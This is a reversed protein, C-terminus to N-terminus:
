EEDGEAGVPAYMRDPASVGLLTLANRLVIRVCDVLFLRADRKEPDDSVIKEAHKYRTYYGHFTKILDQLYFVVHHPERGIACGEIIGPYALAQRALALEEPLRLARVMEPRYGPVAHGADAAKRIISAIRAHGYQVYYVPNDLSQSKALDLDFELQSDHRRMIFFFRAADPGVEDRLFRLDVINGARKSFKVPQGDRLLNVLQVLVVELAAPDHGMGALSAKMRPIYGHHDAGWVDILTEFGREFKDNHYAIDSAFYTPVGNERIVVRDDDDGFATTRFKRAGTEDTYMHGKRELEDLLGYVKGDAYLSSEAFWNDFHINFAALDERIDDLVRDSVYRRFREGIAEDGAYDADKLSAGVEAHLLRAFDWVYEGQYCTDPYPEDVGCLARYRHYLSAGLHWMQKGVDNIYYERTVDFGATSMVSALLDGVVAGRGHGVHLPGTPNASVFEIMVRRGRGADSRGWAEDAERVQALASFWVDRRFRLNIFGPGAVEIAELLGDPDVVNQVVLDAIDRPKRKLPRALSLCVNTAFDGHEERKPREIAIEPTEALPLAGSRRCEDFTDELIKQAVRDLM